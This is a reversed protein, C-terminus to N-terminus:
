VKSTIMRIIKIEGKNWTESMGLYKWLDRAGLSLMFITKIFKVANLHVDTLQCPLFNEVIVQLYQM